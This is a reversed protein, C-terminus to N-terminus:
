IHPKFRRSGGAAGATPRRRPARRPGGPLGILALKAPRSLKKLAHERRSASSRDPWRETHVVRVPRRTRTYKSASGVNHAALRRSMTTTIGAYLTGDACELLYCFWGTSAM